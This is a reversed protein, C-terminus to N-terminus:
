LFFMANIAIWVMMTPWLVRWVERATKALVGNKGGLWRGMVALRQKFIRLRRHRGRTETDFVLQMVTMDKAKAASIWDSPTSMMRSTKRLITRPKALPSAYGRSSNGSDPLPLFYSSPDDASTPVARHYKENASSPFLGEADSNGMGASVSGRPRSVSGRGMYLGEGTGGNGIMDEEDVPPVPFMKADAKPSALPSGPASKTIRRINGPRSRAGSLGTSPPEDTMVSLKLIQSSKRSITPSKERYPTLGTSNYGSQFVGSMRPTPSADPVIGGAGITWGGYKAITRKLNLYFLMLICVAALPIYFRVYIQLQDPLLCPVDAFTQPSASTGETIYPPPVLSMLQFGPRNVGMAMSFAKLTTEKVGTPHWYECYDHDDGSFIGSPKLYSLLFRTTESGLLNQYGIGAGKLLRGKERLPGCSSSEPRALPIHSILIKPGPPPDQSLQKIFEIVGGPVGEWEGLQVEAAYRRYDEEILSVADLMIFTHNAINVLANPPTFNEAYRQKAYPSFLRNPGLGLDHNGPVYYMPTGEPLQFISKFRNTYTQYRHHPLNTPDKLSFYSIIIVQEADNFVGRGWDMMDGAVIVADIRGLRKLVNWSKRMYLDIFWTTVKQLVPNRSPYSLTPHPIQPDALLVVHTPSTLGGSLKNGLTHLHSTPLGSDPFHCSSVSYFFEGVECWIVLVIWGFRLGWILATRSRWGSGAEWRDGQGANGAVGCMGGASHGGSTRRRELLGSSAGAIGSPFVFSSSRSIAPTGIGIGYNGNGQQHAFFAGGTSMPTEGYGSELSKLDHSSSSPSYGVDLYSPSRYPSPSPSSRASPIGLRERTNDAM